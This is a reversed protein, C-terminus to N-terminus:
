VNKMLKKEQCPLFMDELSSCLMASWMAALMGEMEAPWQSTESAQHEKSCLVQKSALGTNLETPSWCATSSGSIRSPTSHSTPQHSHRHPGLGPSDRINGGRAFLFYSKVVAGPVPCVPACLPLVRHQLVSCHARYLVFPFLIIVHPNQYPLLYPLIAMPFLGSTRISSFDKNQTQMLGM